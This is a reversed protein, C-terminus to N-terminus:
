SRGALLAKLRGRPTRGFLRLHYSALTETTWHEKYELYDGGFELVRDGRELSDAAWLAFLLSGPSFRAWAPDYAGVLMTVVGREVLNVDFAVLRGRARLLCVDLLGRPAFANLVETYFATRGAVESPSGAQGQWSREALEFLTDRLTALGFRAHEEPTRLRVLELPGQQEELRNRGWRLKKRSTKNRLHLLQDASGPLVLRPQRDFPVLRAPLGASRLRRVLTPLQGDLPDLKFFDLVDYRAGVDRWLAQLAAGMTPVDAALVPPIRQSNIEITRLSALRGLKGPLPADQMLALAATAGNSAVFRLAVPRHGAPLSTHIGAEIWDLDTFVTDGPVDQRLAQWDRRFADTLPYPEQRTILM